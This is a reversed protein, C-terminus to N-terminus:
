TGSTDTGSTDATTDDQTQAADSATTDDQQVPADAVKLNVTTRQDQPGKKDQEYVTAATADSTTVHEVNVTLKLKELTQRADQESKGTVDPIDVKGDSVNLNIKAKSDASTGIGPDTSVVTDKAKEPDHVSTNTIDGTFGYDRLEQKADDAKKGALDTPIRISEPGSSKFVRVKSNKPVKSGSTPDTRTVMDKVVTNSPETVTDSVQLGANIISAHAQEATMNAIQPVTVEETRSQKIGFGLGGLIAILGIVSWFVKQFSAPLKKPINEEDTFITEPEGAVAVTSQTQPVATLSDTDVLQHSSSALHPQSLRATAATAGAVGAAGLLATKQESSNAYAKDVISDLTETKTADFLMTQPEDNGKSHFAAEAFTPTKGATAEILDHRFSAADQYRDQPDKQLAHEVVQDLEESVNPNLESPKVPIESVHQFALSVASEGLFPPRGTLMEYLLCGTSYLDSRIDVEKGQAQEPSLYQATGVVSEKHEDTIRKGTTESITGAIGFDMVKITGNKTIMINSPKVDRHVIGNRHSYQLASLLESTYKAADRPDLPGEAILQNLLTGEVYEMVIYPIDIYNGHLETEYEGTDFVSVIQPLNLGAAAQAEKSFRKICDPDEALDDKLMKIAVPRGLRNDLGKYVIAMGGRGVIRDIEYRDKLITGKTISM